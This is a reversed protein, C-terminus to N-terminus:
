GGRGCTWRRAGPIRTGRDERTPALRQREEETHRRGPAFLEAMPDFM